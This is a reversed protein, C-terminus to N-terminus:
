ASCQLKPFIDNILWEAMHQYAKQTLHIGDWSIHQDPNPCVPVGLAGCMRRLSFNHDGGTGCCAKQMTKTDFGLSQANQYISMFAKYYDGYVIIVDPYNTKLGEVTQKLLENHYSAFSNLGKLCHFEDYAAADNPQFQSLYIPFCGIPFNGPVVVRRAGYGIVKEVADKIAKVVEPVLAKMEENSKNFLFAYNYDNGGIEGVMFLSSKIEKACDKSCTNFYTFMWELQASLSEKTVINLINKSSLVEAPLATSGAVAFNVGSCGGSFIRAPNLFADLYPLKASRAIYDIMLLGNSCRGTPKSLNMGYPFWAYRSLPNETILNGTDAISDGLQYIAANKFFMAVADKIAGVVEPVLANLEETTKNFLFAYNYDNGGIEGVMFLSSKIEQACDESCTTNFYSFMWELQSSLSENTVINVINKSSLAEAPLATSGAVAFNVGGRGGSFKRASNLYAGPYPLKASRATPKSLKLGYPFSAYPSLPNERILNGTDAISDGLQYIAKFGCKELAHVDRSLVPVLLFHFLSSLVLACVVNSTAM